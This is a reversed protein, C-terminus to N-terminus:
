RSYTAENRRGINMIIPKGGIRCFIIRIQGKRLRYTDEYGKLKKIDLNKLNNSIIKQVLEIAVAQEDQRLKALAKELKNM